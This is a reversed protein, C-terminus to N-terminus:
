ILARARSGSGSVCGRGFRLRFSRELGRKGREIRDAASTSSGGTTYATSATVGACRSRPRASSGSPRAQAPGSQQDRGVLGVGPPARRARSRSVATRETADAFAGAASTRARASPCAESSWPDVLRRWRRRRRDPAAAAVAVARGALGLRPQSTDGARNAAGSINSGRAPRAARGHPLASSATTRASAPQGSAAARQVRVGRSLRARVARGRM